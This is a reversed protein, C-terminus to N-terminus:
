KQEGGETFHGIVFNLIYGCNACHQFRVPLAAMQDRGYLGMVVHKFGQERQMAADPAVALFEDHECIPCVVHKRGSSVTPVVFKQPKLPEPM